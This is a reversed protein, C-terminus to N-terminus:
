IGLSTALATQKVPLQVEDVRVVPHRGDHHHRRAAALRLLRLQEDGALQLTGTCQRDVVVHASSQEPDVLVAIHDLRARRISSVAGDHEGLLWTYVGHGM